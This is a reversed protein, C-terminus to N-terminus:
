VRGATRNMAAELASRIDDGVHENGSQQPAGGSPLSAGAQAARQAAANQQAAAAALRRREVIQSITPHLMTAREYAQQLTMQQGRRSAVELLDAMDDRVDNAFENAPDNFFDDIQQQMTRQQNQQFEGQKSRLSNVFEIVPGIQQQLHQINPDVQPAASPQGQLKASLVDDLIQLDIGFRTVMDAVLEAKQQPTGVRLLAASQMVSQVATTYTGGEAAILHRYPDLVQNMETTFKRADATERLAGEIERERRLIEQQAAAPLQAFTERVEPKWSVPAKAGQAPPALPEKTEAPKTKTQDQSEVTQDVKSEKQENGTSVASEKAQINQDADASSGNSKVSEEQVGGGADGSSTSGLSEVAKELDDRIDGDFM